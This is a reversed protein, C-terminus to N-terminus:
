QIIIKSTNLNNGNQITFFYMGSSLNFESLGLSQNGRLSKRLLIRGSSDTIVFLFSENNDATILMRDSKNAPNPCELQITSHALEDTNTTLTNYIYEVGLTLENTITNLRNISLRLQNIDDNLFVLVGRPLPLLSDRYSFPSRKSIAFYDTFEYAISDYFVSIDTLNESVVAGTLDNENYYGRKHVTKVWDGNELKERLILEPMQFTENMVVISRSKLVWDNNEYDFENRTTSDNQISYEFRSSFQGNDNFSTENIIKQTSDEYIVEVEGRKIWIENPNKYFSQSILYPVNSNPTYIERRNKNPPAFPNGQITVNEIITDGYSTSRYSAELVSRFSSSFERDAYFTERGLSDHRFIDVVTHKNGFADGIMSRIEILNIFQGNSFSKTFKETNSSETNTLISKFEDIQCFTSLPLYLTICLLIINKM